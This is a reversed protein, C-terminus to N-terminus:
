PVFSNTVSVERIQRSSREYVRFIVKVGRLPTNYPPWTEREMPDDVGNVGDSDIGDTGQDVADARWPDGAVPPPFFEDQNIGDHEYHWSWTDFVAPYGTLGNLYTHGSRPSRPMGPHWGAQRPDHFHPRPTAAALPMVPDPYRLSALQRDWAWGLDAYAGFDAPAAGVFNVWGLDSPEVVTDPGAQFVPAGPDYVRIDFALAEDIMLDEGTRDVVTTAGADNLRRHVSLPQPGFTLAAIGWEAGPAKSGADAARSYMIPRATAAVTQGDGVTVGVANDYRGGSTMNYAVIAGEEVEALAAADDGGDFGVPNTTGRDFRVVPNAPYGRGGTALHHPFSAATVAGGWCRNERRTLDALTNPIWRNNDADYRASIDYRQFFWNSAYAYWGATPNTPPNPPGPIPSLWPAIVLARRYISRLGPEGLLGNAPNEVAFWVVEALQSEVAQDIWELDGDGDVDRQIQVTAVFPEDDSRVTLALIDDYDGLGSPRLSEQSNVHELADDEDIRGDSNYDRYINNRPIISLAYDLETNAGANVRDVLISPNSDSWPGEIIEF